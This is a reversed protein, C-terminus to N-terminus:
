SLSIKNTQNSPITFKEDDLLPPLELALLVENLKSFDFVGLNVLFQEPLIYYVLTDQEFQYELLNKNKPKDPIALNLEAMRRIADFSWGTFPGWKNPKEFSVLKYGAPVVLVPIELNGIKVIQEVQCGPYNLKVSQLIPFNIMDIYYYIIEVVEFFDKEAYIKYLVKSNYQRKDTLRSLAYFDLWCDFKITARTVVRDWNKFQLNQQQFFERVLYFCTLYGEELPALIKTLQEPIEIKKNDLQVVTPRTGQFKRVPVVGKQCASLVFVLMTALFEEKNRYYYERPKRFM